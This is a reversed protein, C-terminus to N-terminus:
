TPKYCYKMYIDYIEREIEHINNLRYSYPGHVSEIKLSNYRYLNDAKDRFISLGEITMLDFNPYKQSLEKYYDSFVIRFYYAAATYGAEELDDATVLLCFEIENEPVQEMGGFYYNFLEPSM